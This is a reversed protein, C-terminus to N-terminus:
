IKIVKIPKDIISLKLYYSGVLLHEIRIESVNLGTNLYIEGQQVLQGVNNYIIYTTVYGKQSNIKLTIFDKAPSPFVEAVTIKQSADVGGDLITVSQSASDSGCNSYALLKVPYQGTQAYLHTPNQDVSTTGDGFNWLWSNSNSSNNSFSFSLFDTQTYMFSATPNTGPLISATVPVRASVCGVEQVHWDYFFYYVSSPSSAANSATIKVLDGILYPYSATTNNRYLNPNTNATLKFGTGQPVDFNLFVRTQGVALTVTKQQIVVGSSNYLKFTRSASSNANVLVSMLKFPKLADFFLGYESTNNYFGGETNVRSDGGTISDAVDWNEVYYTTNASLSPTVFVNGTALLTGATALNYWRMTGSGSAQLTVSGANCRQGNIGVPIGPQQIHIYNTKITTDNQSCSNTSILRVTYTGESAYTHSPSSLTSTAGDGFSWNWTNGTATSDTINQFTVTPNCTISDAVFFKAELGLILQVDKRVSQKDAATITYTQSLYCPASYTVSYTGGKIPRHYNGVPLSTYVETNYADHSEILIKAKIPLGTNADTVVGRIGYLAQEMFQMLSKFNYNWYTNLNETGLAKTASVELTLERCKQFYGMYDQRGGTVAYWDAGETVGPYAGTYAVETMYGNNSASSKCSDVYEKCVSIWWAADPQPRETTTYYDWPYNALEAGGHFNASMVFNHATAFTMFAQTEPQTANGDPNNGTWPDPYNRNLDVNNFNTRTSTPSNGITNNNTKYTGDPNAFPCIYIEMNNLLNTVRPVTTYNSLLYDILRLMFIAGTTEDGHMTSSYLFEPEDEHINVNKSIKAVLIKKGGPTNALITDIKCLTPYNTQFNALLQTYVSYTPYRDWNVMQATTTAMTFAKSAPEADKIQYQVQENLFKQLDTNNLYARIQFNDESVMKVHDVSYKRSFYNVQDKSNAFFQVQVECNQNQLLNNVEIVNPQHYTQSFATMAVVMLFIVGLFGKTKM